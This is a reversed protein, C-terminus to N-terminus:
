EKERQCRRIRGLTADKMEYGSSPLSLQPVSWLKMNHRYLKTQSISNERNREFRYYSHDWDQYWVSSSIKKKRFTRTNMVDELHFLKGIAMTTHFLVRVRYGRDIPPVEVEEEFALFVLYNFKLGYEVKWKFVCGEPSNRCFCLSPVKLHLSKITNFRRVFGGVATMDDIDQIELTASNIHSLLSAFRKSVTLCRVLSKGDVVKSLICDLVHDPLRDFLDEEVENKRNAMKERKFALIRDPICKKVKNKRNAKRNGM